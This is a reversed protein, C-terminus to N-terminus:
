LFELEMAHCIFGNGKTNELYTHSDLIPFGQRFVDIM